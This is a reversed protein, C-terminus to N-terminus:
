VNGGRQTPFLTTVSPVVLYLGFTSRSFTSEFYICCDINMTGYANICNFDVGARLFLSVLLFIFYLMVIQSACILLYSQNIVVQTNNKHNKAM